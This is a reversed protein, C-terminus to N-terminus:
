AQDEKISLREREAGESDDIEKLFLGDFFCKVLIICGEERQRHSCSLNSIKTPEMTHSPILVKKERSFSCM